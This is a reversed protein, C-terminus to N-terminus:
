ERFLVHGRRRVVVLKKKHSEEVTDVVRGSCRFRLPLKKGVRRCSQCLLCKTGFWWSEWVRCRCCCCCCGSHIWGCRGERLYCSQSVCCCRRAEKGFLLNGIAPDMESLLYLLLLLVVALVVAVVLRIAHKPIRKPCQLFAIHRPVLRSEFTRTRGDM